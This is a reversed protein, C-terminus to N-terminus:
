FFCLFSVIIGLSLLWGLLVGLPIGVLYYSGINVFAAKAQWGSGVAVGPFLCSLDGFNALM